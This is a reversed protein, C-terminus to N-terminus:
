RMRAIDIDIDGTYPRIAEEIIAATGEADFYDPSIQLLKHLAGTANKAHESPTRMAVSRGMRSIRSHSSFAYIALTARGLGDDDKCMGFLVLFGVVNKVSSEAEQPIVRPAASLGSM